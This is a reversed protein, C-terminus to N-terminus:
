KFPNGLALGDGFKSFNLSFISNKKFMNHALKYALEMKDEKPLNQIFSLDSTSSFVTIAAEKPTHAHWSSFVVLVRM